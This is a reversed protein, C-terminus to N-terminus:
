FITRPAAAGASRSAPLFLLFKPGMGPRCFGVRCKDFDEAPKYSACSLTLMVAGNDKGGVLELCLIGPAWTVASGCDLFGPGQVAMAMLFAVWRSLVSM